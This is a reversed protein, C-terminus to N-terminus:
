ACGKLRAKLEKLNIDEDWKTLTGLTRMRDYLSLTKADTQCQEAFHKTRGQAEGIMALVQVYPRFLRMEKPSAEWAARLRVEWDRYIMM